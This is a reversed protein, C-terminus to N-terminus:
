QVGTAAGGLISDALWALDPNARVHKMPGVLVNLLSLSKIKTSSETEGLVEGKSMSKAITM